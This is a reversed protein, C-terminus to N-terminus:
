NGKNVKMSIQLLFQLPEIRINKPLIKSLVKLVKLHYIHTHIHAAIGPRPLILNFTASESVWEIDTPSDSYASIEILVIEWNMDLTPGNGM